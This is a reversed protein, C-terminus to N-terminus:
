QNLESISTAIGELIFQVSHAEIVNGTFFLTGDPLYVNIEYYEPKEFPTVTAVCHLETRIEKVIWDWGNTYMINEKLAGEPIRTWNVANCTRRM